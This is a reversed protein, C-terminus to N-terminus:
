PEDARPSAGPSPAQDLGNLGREYPELVTQVAPAPGRMAAVRGLGAMVLLLVAIAAIVASVVGAVHGVLLWADHTVVSVVIGGILLVASGVLLRRALNLLKV